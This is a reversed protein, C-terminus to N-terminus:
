AQASYLAPSEPYVKTILAIGEQHLGEADASQGSSESLEALESLVQARLWVISVIRGGRVEALTRNARALTSAAGANNGILRLGTARLYDAQGDLL